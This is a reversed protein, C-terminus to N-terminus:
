MLAHFGENLLEDLDREGNSRTWHGLAINLCALAAGARVEHAMTVSQGSRAALATALAPRWTNQKHLQHACLAPTEEVLRATALANEPDTRHPAIMTDLARRLATWDDESAPRERLLAAIQEFQLDFAGLVAEEKTGFHRLFTSRSVGAAAALDNVTVNDFGASRFMGFAVEALRARVAARAIDRSSM